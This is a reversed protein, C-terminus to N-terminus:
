RDAGPERGTGAPHGAPVIRVYQDPLVMAVHGARYRDPGGALVLHDGVRAKM